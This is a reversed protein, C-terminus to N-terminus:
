NVVMRVVFTGSRGSVTVLYVGDPLMGSPVIYHQLKGAENATLYNNWFMRGQLNAISIEVNEGPNMGSLAIQFSNGRNPNPYLNLSVDAMKEYLVGVWDSYEYSGDFDTQKLRYYSMGKMPQTDLATYSLNHTSHGNQAQSAIVAVVEADKGNPSREITFFDNNTESATVWELEVMNQKPQATFSILEIPLPVQDADTSALTLYRFSSKSSFETDTSAQVWGTMDGNSQAAANGKDIWKDNNWEAVTMFQELQSPEVEPVTSGPGWSLQVKASSGTPAEMKWYETDSVIELPSAIEGADAIPIVGTLYEITYYGAPNVDHLYVERINGDQGVPFRHDSGASLNRSLKGQIYSGTSISEFPNSSSNDLTLTNPMEVVVRSSHYLGLSNRINIDGNLGVEAGDFIYLNNFRNNPNNFNGSISKNHSGHLKLTNNREADYTATGSKTISTGYFDINHGDSTVLEVNDKWEINGKVEIHNQLTISVDAESIWNGNITFDKDNPLIRNGSETLTFNNYFNRGPLNYDTNGGFEVTSTSDPNFFDTYDGTPLAGRETALTGTGAVYGLIHNLTTGTELRGDIQTQYARRANDAIRMTHGELVHIRQGIPGGAPVAHEDSRSWDAANTWVGNESVSTYTPVEDPIWSDEGATYDGSIDNVNSHTFNIYNDEENVIVLDDIEQYKEWSLDSLLIAGLFNEDNDTINEGDPDLVPVADQSYYNRQLATFENLGSSRVNWYQHLVKEKRDEVGDDLTTHLSNSPIIRISGGGTNRAIFFEVPLFRQNGGGDDTGIPFYFSDVYNPDDPNYPDFPEEISGDSPSLQKEIGQTFDAAVAIMKNNGFPESGGSIVETNQGLTLLHTGLFFIDSTLTLNNNLSMNDQLEVRNDIDIRGFQGNGYIRQTASGAFRIGGQNADDSIHSSHNRVDKEVTITNGGDILQGAVLNLEGEVTIGSDDLLKVSTEAEVWLHNTTLFGSVEQQSSSPNTNVGRFFLTDVNLQNQANNANTFHGKLILNRKNEGDQGSVGANSGIHLNGNLTLDRVKLSLITESGSVNVHALPINSNVNFNTSAPTQADDGFNITGRVTSIAPDLMLATQNAQSSIIHIIGGTQYFQSGTNLVEFVGRDSTGTANKGVTLTGGTQIYRLIGSPNTTGRRIQSGVVVNSNDHIELRARGSASYQIYNNGNSTDDDMDIIGETDARLLGDLLIGTDDGSVNVQGKSVVLAASGPIEFNGGGTSLDIDIHENNIKLRGQHLLVSKEESGTDTEGGITIRSNISVEDTTNEKNIVLRYLDPISTDPHGSHYIDEFISNGSGAFELIVNNGDNNDTFLDIENDHVDDKDIDGKVILRHKLNNQADNLVRIRRTNGNSDGVNFNIGGVEVTREHKSSFSLTGENYDGLLLNGLVVFDGDEEDSTIFEGGNDIIFDNRVIFDYNMTASGEELRLNPYVGGSINPITHFNNNGPRFHFRATDNLNFESFDASIAPFAGEATSYNHVQFVGPGEVVGADLTGNGGGQNIVVRSIRADEPPDPHPVFKIKGVEVDNKINISHWGGRDSHGGYGIIAIDGSGPVLDDPYNSRSESPDFTHPEDSWVNPDDWSFYYWKDDDVKTYFVKIEGDFVQSKGATFEGTELIGIDYFDLIGTQSNTNEVNLRGTQTRVNEVVKGPVINSWNNQGSVDEIYGLFQNQVDPIDTFDKDRIRWYYLLYKRNNVDSDDSLTALKRPVGNIQVKGADTVNSFSPNAWAYRYADGANNKTGIPFLYTDDTSITRTLGGDGHNGTTRFMRSNSYYEITNDHLTGEVDLNHTRLDFIGRTLTMTGTVTQKATLFTIEESLESPHVEDIELNEIIGDGDGGLEHGTGTIAHATADESPNSNSFTVNPATTYGSGTDTIIIKSIPLPNEASPTGNFVAVATAQTGDGPADITVDPVSAYSGENTLEIAYVRGRDTLLVKGSSSAITGSNTINGRVTVVRTRTDFTSSPSISLNNGVFIHSTKLTGTFGPNDITLDHFYHSGSNEIDIDYGSQTGRFITNNGGTLYQTNEGIHLGKGITVDLGKPNFITNDELTLDGKTILPLAMLEAQNSANTGVIGSSLEFNRETSNNSRMSVNPFPARSTIKFPRGDKEILILHALHNVNQNEPDSNIFIAGRNNTGNITLTGGTLEFVNGEYSLTFSYYNSQAGSGNINVDGGTQIYGGIHQNGLNSTRFQRMSSTGGKSEFVGNLRTTIGSGVDASFIGGTIKVKGYVVVATGSSKTVSGGDVWFVANESVNYNGNNNLCPIEINEGIRVTGFTLGLSNNNISLQAEDSHSEGAYGLLEFQGAQRAFIHLEYTSTLGKEIAIRYFKSPGRIDLSQNRAASRFNLDVIGDTAQSSYNSETRNTFQVDGENMFDGYLNLQHKADASGTRIKGPQYVTLDERITMTRATETANDGFRLSGRIIKLDGNLTYNTLLNIEDSDNNLDIELNRFTRQTNLEYGSGKYRVTGGTEPHAFGSADGAPFNDNHLEIIGQPQGTIVPFLHGTTNGFDIVGNRVDLVGVEIDNNSVTVMNNKQIVVRDTPGPPREPTDPSDPNLSWHELNDWDVNGDYSYYTLSELDSRAITYYGTKFFEDSISFHAVGNSINAYGGSVHSFQGSDNERHLLVYIKGADATIGTENFDFSLNIDTTGNGEVGNQRREIYYVRDWRQDITLDDITPLDNTNTSHTTGDHAAFVFENEEDLSNNNESLVLGSGINQTQTYKHGNAHGIGVFDEDYTTSSFGSVTLDIGYRNSLYTDVIIREAFNLARSYVIVESMDGKFSHGYEDNLIGIYVQSNTEPITTNDGTNEAGTQIANQFVRSRYSPDSGNFLASFIQVDNTVETNGKMESPTNFHLRKSNHTYFYYSNEDDHDVRKSILGRPETDIGDPKAVVFITLGPMGDLSTHDDIELNIDTGGFSLSPLNNIGNAKFEPSKTEENQFAHNNNGSIDKWESVKDGSETIGQDARLWLVNESQDGIGAPPAAMALCSAFFFVFFYSVRRMVENSASINKKFRLKIDFFPFNMNYILSCKPM